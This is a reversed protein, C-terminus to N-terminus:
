LKLVTRANQPVSGLFRAKKDESLDQVLNRLSDMLLKKNNEPMTNFLLILGDVNLKALRDPSDIIVDVYAGFMKRRKEEDFECLVEMWTKTLNSLIDFDVSPAASLANTVIEKKEIDSLAFFENMRNKLMPKRLFEPLGALIQIINGAIQSDTV